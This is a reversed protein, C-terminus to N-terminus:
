VRSSKFRCVRRQQVETRIKIFGAKQYVALANPHDLTCTNLQIWKPQYSWGKEIVWALFYAGYGKGVFDPLLGFYQIETFDNERVFEAFGAPVENIRMVWIETNAANIKEFLEQDPMVMRDLWHWEKGVGYYYERYIDVSVPKELLTFSIGPAPLVSNAPAAHMELFSVTVPISRIQSFDIETNM